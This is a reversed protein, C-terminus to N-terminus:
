GGCSSRHLSGVREGHAALSRNVAALMRRRRPRRRGRPRLNNGLQHLDWPSLLSVPIVSM